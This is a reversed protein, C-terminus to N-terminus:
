YRLWRAKKERKRNRLAEFVTTDKLGLSLKSAIDTNERWKRNLFNIGLFNLM